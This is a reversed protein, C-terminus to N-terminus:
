IHRTTRVLGVKCYAQIDGVIWNTALKPAVGTAQLVCMCVRVNMCENMRGVDFLSYIHMLDIFCRAVSAVTIRGYTHTHTHTCQGVLVADFLAATAPEDALQLVDAVPLGLGIYRERRAAPLEPMSAQVCVCVVWAHLEITPAAFIDACERQQWVGYIM